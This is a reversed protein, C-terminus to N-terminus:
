CAQSTTVKKTWKNSYYRISSIATGILWGIPISVWLSKEGIINGLMYCAAVRVFLDSLTSLMYIKMDGSGRLVGNSILMFVLLIYPFAVTQLYQVGVNIAEKSSTSDLFMGILNNGFAFISIIVVSSFALTIRLAARYGEKVREPKKAGLNQATFTSVTSSMNSILMSIFANIKVAASYGAVVTSGYSNVSTQILLQGISVISQQTISPIALSCIQKFINLDFLKAKGETEIKHIQICLTIVALFASIGQSIFTSWAAGNVGLHLIAVLIFALVVNLISSFMLIFMPIKSNGMGIFAGMAANYIFLFVIAVTCIRLYSSSTDYIDSPTNMLLLIGNSFILGLIALVISLVAISIISTYIATKMDRFRKAGFLQSIVVSCGNAAGMAISIFLMIIPFSNGVAALAEMGVYNGVIVSDAILYLQQFIGSFVLPLSFYLIIKTPNGVSMDKVM